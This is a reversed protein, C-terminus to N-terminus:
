QALDTKGLLSDVAAGIDPQTILAEGVLMAQIGAQQLRLVDQRTRIGSEAVVVCESPIKPRLRLVQELDVQFTHLNRNNVGILRAGLRLVRELNEPDHLEVLPTMGWTQVEHYLLGLTADDLCEAILLVADAGAARAELVQYPDLIFDKRLIPLHVAARVQQLHTLSGLFFEPDTLVSLCAAGHQQYIRAITEPQYDARLLGRSPSAKKLEAILRIPPGGELAALFDRPPPAAEAQIRLHKEPALTKAQGIEQQKRAMIRQLFGATMFCDGNDLGFREPAGLPDFPWPKQKQYCKLRITYWLM